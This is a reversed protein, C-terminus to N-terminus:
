INPEDDVFGVGEARFHLSCVWHVGRYRIGARECRRVDGHGHPELAHCRWDDAMPRSPKPTDIM